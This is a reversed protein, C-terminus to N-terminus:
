ENHDGEKVETAEGIVSTTVTKDHGPAGSFKEVTVISSYERLPVLIEMTTVMFWLLVSWIAILFLIEAMLMSFISGVVLAIVCACYIPHNFLNTFISKVTAYAGKFMNKVWTTIGSFLSPKEKEIAFAGQETM